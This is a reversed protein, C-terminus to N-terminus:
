PTKFQNEKEVLVIYFTFFFSTTWKLVVKGRIVDKSPFQSYSFLSTISCKYYIYTIYILNMKINTMIVTRKKKIM